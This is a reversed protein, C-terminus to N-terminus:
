MGNQEWPSLLKVDKIATLFFGHQKEIVVGGKIEEKSEVPIM